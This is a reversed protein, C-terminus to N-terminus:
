GSSGDRKNMIGVVREAGLGDVKKIALLQAKRVIEPHNIAELLASQIMGQDVDESRGLYWDVGAIQAAVSSPVQNAAVAIVIGPLGMCYRELTMTGGGCIALDAIGMLNAMQKTQVHLTCQSLKNCQQSIHEAARHQSGIIVHIDLKSINSDILADLVKTTENTPDSGGFCVLLSSVSDNRLYLKTRAKAFEPRLLAYHNGFLTQVNSGLLKQYSENRGIWENQDLLLHCSHSRNALDDIVMLQRTFPAVATELQSDWQYHDIVLWDLIGGSNNIWEKISIVEDRDDALHYYSIGDISLEEVLWDPLARSFFVVEAGRRRWSNALTRCRMLHGFGLVLSADARFGVKM